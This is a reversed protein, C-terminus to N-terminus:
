SLAHAPVIIPYGAASEVEIVYMPRMDTAYFSALVAVLTSTGNPLSLRAFMGPGFMM